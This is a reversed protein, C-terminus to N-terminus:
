ASAAAAAGFFGRRVLGLHSCAKNGGCRRAFDVALDSNALASAPSDDTGVGTFGCSVTVRGAAGFRYNEVNARFRDFASLVLAAPLLFVLKNILSGKAIRWVIPLERAPSFGQVYKPSVATDDIVAGAAKSGAKVAQGAVDDISAAAVKAISAVDDLLAMLGSM